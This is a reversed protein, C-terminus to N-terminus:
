IGVWGGDLELRNATSEDVGPPPTHLCWFTRENMRKTIWKKERKQM